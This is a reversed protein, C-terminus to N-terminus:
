TGGMNCAFPISFNSWDAFGILWLAEQIKTVGFGIRYEHREVFRSFYIVFFPGFINVWSKRNLSISLRNPLKVCLLRFCLGTPGHFSVFCDNVCLSKANRGKLRRGFSIYTNSQSTLLKVTSIARYHRVLTWREIKTLRFLEKQVIVNLILLSM